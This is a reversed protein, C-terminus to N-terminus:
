GCLIRGVRSHSVFQVQFLRFYERQWFSFMQSSYLKPTEMSTM